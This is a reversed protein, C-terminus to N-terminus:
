SIFVKIVFHFIPNKDCIRLYQMVQFCNDRQRVCRTGVKTHNEGEEGEEEEERELRIM